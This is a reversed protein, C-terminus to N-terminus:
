IGTGNEHLARCAAHLIGAQILPQAVDRSFIRSKAERGRM